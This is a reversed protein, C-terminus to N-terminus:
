FKLLLKNGRTRVNHSVEVSGFIKLYFCERHLRVISLAYIIHSSIIFNKHLTHNSRMLSFHKCEM